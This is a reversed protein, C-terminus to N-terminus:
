RKGGNLTEVRRDRGHARGDANSCVLQFHYVTHPKLGRVRATVTKTRTGSGVNQVPTASGYRDTRGYRFRCRTPFGDPNVTGHLTVARSTQRTARGTTVTPAGHTRFKQDGGGARGGLNRCVLQDHYTTKPRLGTVRASVRVTRSGSGVNLRPTTSGYRATRGYQFSCRTASGNPNVTGTLTASRDTVHTAPGTKVKPPPCYQPTKPSCPGGAASTLAPLGVALVFVLSAM